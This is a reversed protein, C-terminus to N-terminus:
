AVNPTTCRLVWAELEQRDILWRKSKYRRAQLEGAYIARRIESESLSAFKAAERPRVYRSEELTPATAIPLPTVM